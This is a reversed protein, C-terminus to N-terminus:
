PLVEDFSHIVRHSVLQPQPHNGPRVCLTTQLGAAAAADLEETIDSVFLLSHPESGLSATIRAYSASDKKGGINTDFYESIFPTLDGAETNAFLLKQALVSGSSYICIMKGQERWRNFAPPVDAFLTSQLAGKRYGEEWIKGQLSKLATSKRDQDMLWRVYAAVADVSVRPYGELAPPDLGRQVDNANEDVLGAIDEDSRHSALFDEVHNRAYPFLVNYVFDIPTTTGEIDLILATISPTLPQSTM